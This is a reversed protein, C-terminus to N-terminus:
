ATNPKVPKTTDAEGSDTTLGAAETARQAALQAAALEDSLREIHMIARGLILAIRDDANM